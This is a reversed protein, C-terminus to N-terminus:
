FLERRLGERGLNLWYETEEGQDGNIHKEQHSGMFEMAVGALAYTHLHRHEAATLPNHRNYESAVQECREALNRGGEEHLLNAAMVALEQIRPYWNAVSFDIIYLKGDDGKITNTKIIDGHVFTHPLESVPIEKYRRMVETVLRLDGPDIFRQVKDFMTQIHPIAWSDFLYPPKYGIRNIKAAQEIIAQREEDTPIRGLDYFTKGEVFRMLVLSINGTRYVAGGGPAAVLAPHNVGAEVVKEIVKAYRGIEGAKRTKAFMKAMFRGQATDIIVNCDEYGVGIVSFGQPSGLGYAQCVDDVVPALDGSYDLRGAPARHETSV